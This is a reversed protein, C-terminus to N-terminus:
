AGYGDCNKYGKSFKYDGSLFQLGKHFWSKQLKVLSSPILGRKHQKLAELRQSQLAILEDLSSLCDAIKQQEPLSPIPVIMDAIMTMRVSDVSNKASLQKVRNYFHTSFYFYFYKGNVNKAFDCICYVRQHFDFKGIVYHYNKGVGVGDGSTLVAEGDFSFSNIREITQSRVFFPYFGNDIKDQTDKKGTTVKAFKSIKIQVWEGADRFEPFRLRPTTQGRAPFIQQVLGNKHAKLADLKRAEGRIVEDLSSLCDAIKQQEPLSPTFIKIKALRTASIGLVKAGQSERQIQKRIVGSKFLYGSFGIAYVAEKQRAHLTHLGSVIKEEGINVIEITKGIDDIDESADAFIVDGPLCFSDQDFDEPRTGNNIFPVTEKEIDFLSRFKTHIDGYHINRIQGSDYTLRERSLSNTPIFRFIEGLRKVEWEGADRFEPFRLEPVLPRKNKHETM